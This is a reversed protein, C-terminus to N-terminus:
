GPAIRNKFFLQLCIVGGIAGVVGYAAVYGPIAVLSEASTRALSKALDPPLSHYLSATVTEVFLSLAIGALSTVLGAVAGSIGGLVAADSQTLGEDPHARLHLHLGLTVGALNLMCFCCNLVNVLPIASLLGGAVGGIVASKLLRGPGRPRPPPGQWPGAGPVPAGPASPGASFGPPPGWGGPIFPEEPPPSM